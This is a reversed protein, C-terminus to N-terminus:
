IANAFRITPVDLDKMGNKVCILICRNTASLAYRAIETKPHNRSSDTVFCAFIDSSEAQYFEMVIFPLQNVPRVDYSTM